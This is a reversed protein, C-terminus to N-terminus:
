IVITYVNCRRWSKLGSGCGRRRLLLLLLLLILLLLILLRRRLLPLLHICKRQGGHLMAIEASRRRQQFHLVFVDHRGHEVGKVEVHLGALDTVQGASWGRRVSRM